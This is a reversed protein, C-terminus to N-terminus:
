SKKTKLNNRYQEAIGGISAITIAICSLCEISIPKFAIYQIGWYGFYIALGALLIITTIVQAKM